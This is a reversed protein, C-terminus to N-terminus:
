SNRAYNSLCGSIYITITGAVDLLATLIIDLFLDHLSRYNPVLITPKVHFPPIKCQRLGERTATLFSCGGYLVSPCATFLKLLSSGEKELVQM